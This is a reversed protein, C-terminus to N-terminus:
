STSDYRYIAINGSHYVEEFPFPVTPLNYWGHGNIWWVLFIQTHGERALTTATAVPDGFAYNVIRDENITTLAWSYFATHTLLLSSDNINNKFWAIANTTDRCDSISITNQLLSSPIQSIYGNAASSSFYPFPKEPPMTAFGISLTATSLVLYAVAIKDLTIRKYKWKYSKLTSLADVAYFAIPYLLLLIWRFNSISAVPIFLLIASLLLWSRLQLNGFKKLSILALPLIPLYCYVLFGVESLLMSQYSPFGTWSGLQSASDASYDLLGNPMAGYLYFVVFFLASPLSAVVLKIAHQAKRRFTDYFATFIIIGLMIVAVLQHSLVVLLMIISLPVIRKWSSNNLTAIITLAAFFLILGVENRLMDWSIRLAVFYVTGILAVITSKSPSWFLGRRAFVYIGLGLFGPFLTSLVKLTLVIPAGAAVISLLIAYFSPGISLFNWLNIGDHLWTAVSPIYFAMTDFGTVYPGMLVEPIARLLCPVSFVLLPFFINSHSKLWLKALM